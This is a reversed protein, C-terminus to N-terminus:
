RSWIIWAIARGEAAGQVFNLDWTSKWQFHRNGPSREVLNRWGWIPRVHTSLDFKTRPSHLLSKFRIRRWLDHSGTLFRWWEHFHDGRNRRYFQLQGLQLFEISSDFANSYGGISTNVTAHFVDLIGASNVPSIINSNSTIRVQPLSDNVGVVISSTLQNTSSTTVLDFRYTPAGHASRNADVGSFLYPLSTGRALQWQYSLFPIIAHLRVIRSALYEWFRQDRLCRFSPGNM